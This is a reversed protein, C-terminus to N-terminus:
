RTWRDHWASLCAMPLMLLGSATDPRMDSGTATYTVSYIDVGDDLTVNIGTENLFLQVLFQALNNELTVDIVQQAQVGISLGVLCISLIIKRALKM